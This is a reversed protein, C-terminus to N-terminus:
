KEWLSNHETHIDQLRAKSFKVEYTQLPQKSIYSWLFEADKKRGLEYLKEAAIWQIRLISPTLPWSTRKTWLALRHADRRDIAQELELDLLTIGCVEDDTLLDPLEQEAIEIVTKDRMETETNHPWSSLLPLIQDCLLIPNKEWQNKIKFVWPTLFHGHKSQLIRTLLFEHEETHHITLDEALGNKNMNENEVIYVAQILKDHDTEIHNKFTEYLHHADEQKGLTIFIKFLIKALKPDVKQFLTDRNALYFGITGYDDKQQIYKYIKIAQANRVPEIWKKSRESDPYHSLFEKVKEIIIEGSERSIYSNIECDWSMEHALFPIKERRLSHMKNRAHIVNKKQYKPFQLCTSRLEAIQAAEHNPFHHAVKSYQVVAQHQLEMKEKETTDKLYSRALFADAIRLLVWPRTQVPLVDTHTGYSDLSRQFIEQAKSFKKMWFFSEAQLALQSPALSQHERQVRISLHYMDEALEYNNLDFYIDGIRSFILAARYPDPDQRLARDLQIIAPPYARNKIMTEALIRRLDARYYRTKSTAGVNEIHELGAEAMHNAKKYQDYKFYMATLQYSGEPMLKDIMPDPIQKKRSFAWTLFTSSHSYYTKAQQSFAGEAQEAKQGMKYFSFGVYLDNRRHFDWSSGYRMRNSLWTDKAEEYDGKLYFQRGRNIHEYPRGTGPSNLLFKEDGFNKVFPFSIKPLEWPYQWFITEKVLNRDPNKQSFDAIISYNKIIKLFDKQSIPTSQAQEACLITISLAIMIFM